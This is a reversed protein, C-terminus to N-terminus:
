RDGARDAAGVFRNRHGVEEGLIPQCQLCKHDVNHPEAFYGLNRFLTAIWIAEAGTKM